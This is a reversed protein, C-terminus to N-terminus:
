EGNKFEKNQDFLKLMNITFDIQLGQSVKQSYICATSLTPQDCHLIKWFVRGKTRRLCKITRNQVCTNECVHLGCCVVVKQWQATSCLDMNEKKEKVLTASESHKNFTRVVHEERVYSWFLVHKWPLCFNSIAKLTLPRLKLVAYFLMLFAAPM